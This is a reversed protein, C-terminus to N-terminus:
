PLNLPLAPVPAPHYTAQTIQLCPSSPSVAPPPPTCVGPSFGAPAKQFAVSGHLQRIQPLPPRLAQPTLGGTAGTSFPPDTDPPLQYAGQARTGGPPPPASTPLQEGAVREPVHPCAPGGAGESSCLTGRSPEKRFRAWPGRPLVELVPSTPVAPLPSRLPPNEWLPGPIHPPAM